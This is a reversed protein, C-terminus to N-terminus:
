KQDGFLPRYDRNNECIFEFIRKRPPDAIRFQRTM